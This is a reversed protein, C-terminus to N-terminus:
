GGAFVAAVLEGVLLEVRVVAVADAFLAEGLSALLLTFVAALEARLRVRIFLRVGQVHLDARADRRDDDRPQDPPQRRSPLSLFWWSVYLVLRNAQAECREARERCPM